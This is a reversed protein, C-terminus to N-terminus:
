KHVCKSAINPYLHVTLQRLLWKSSFRITGESSEITTHESISDNDAALYHNLFIKSLHPLLVERENELEHAAYWVSHLIAKTLTDTSSDSIITEWISIKDYLENAQEHSKVLALQAKCCASCICDNSSISDGDLLQNTLDLNPCHRTFKIGHKSRIGCSTCPRLSCHFERYLQNYLKQCAITYFNKRPHM